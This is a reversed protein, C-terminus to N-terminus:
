CNIRAQLFSHSNSGHQLFFAARGPATLLHSCAASAQTDRTHENLHAAGADGFQLTDKPTLGLDNFNMVIPM